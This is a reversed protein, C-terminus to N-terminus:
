LFTWMLSMFQARMKFELCIPRSFLFFSCMGFINIRSSLFALLCTLLWSCVKACLLDFKHKAIKRPLPVFALGRQPAVHQSTYEQELQHMPLLIFKFIDIDSDLAVIHRQISRYAIISVGLVIFHFYTVILFHIPFLALVFSILVDFFM